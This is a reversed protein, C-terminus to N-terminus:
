SRKLIIKLMNRPRGHLGGRQFNGVLINREEIIQKTIEIPFDMVRRIVLKIMMIINHKCNRVSIRKKVANKTM